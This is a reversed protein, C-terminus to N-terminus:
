SAANSVAPSGALSIPKSFTVSVASPSLTKLSVVTPPLFDGYPTVINTVATFWAAAMQAYGQADPHLQDSSLGGGPYRDVYAHMDLFHVRQGALAHTQVLGQVYPNFQTDILVNKSDLDDAGRKMLTTVVIHAYPRQKALYTVLTDLENIANLFNPDNTDNTGIHVLIVDPDAYAPLWGPLYEYIGNSSGPNSIRWGSHGEHNIEAGLGPASNATDSGIYDVVYGANTLAAYLPLRYGGAVSAGYTISDGLPLVRLPPPQSFAPLAALSCCVAFLSRHVLSSLRASDCRRIIM